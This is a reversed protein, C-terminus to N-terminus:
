NKLESSENKTKLITGFINRFRGLIMGLADWIRGSIKSKQGFKSKKRVVVVTVVTSSLFAPVGKKSIMGSPALALTLVLVLTLTLALVLFPPLAARQLM